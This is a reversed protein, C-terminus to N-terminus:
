HCRIERHKFKGSSHHQNTEITFTTALSYGHLLFLKNKNNENINNHFPNNQQNKKEMKTEKNLYSNTKLM